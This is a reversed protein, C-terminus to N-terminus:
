HPITDVFDIREGIWRVVPVALSNGISQYRPTDKAEKGNHPVLTYNDPLGQARECEVPMLRRVDSKDYLSMGGGKGKDLTPIKESVSMTNQASANAQFVLPSQTNVHKGINSRTLNLGDRGEENSVALHTVDRNNTGGKGNRMLTTITNAAVLHSPERSHGARGGNHMITSIIHGAIAQNDDAGSAGVGSKSLATIKEGEKRGEAFGRQLSEPEFLVAAARRWDGIYGVLFVRRRQQPVGFYQADLVRWALGYGGPAATVVGSNAWKQAPVEWGCLASLLCAFDKGKNSSLVGPVNEWVAWNPSKDRVIRCFHLMLNGREDDLGKRKGAVSFSQCPTGGFILGPSTSQYTENKSILTMDGLNPVNPYHHSLLSCCFKDIESFWLPEWGLGDWAVSSAEIGSCVTSYKIPM